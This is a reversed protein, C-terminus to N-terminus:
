DHKNTGRRERGPLILPARPLEITPTRHLQSIGPYNRRRTIDALAQYSRKRASSRRWALGVTRYLARDNLQCTILSDDRAAVADIYLGPLFTVGLGMAVMERLTDLSTGEYDHRM